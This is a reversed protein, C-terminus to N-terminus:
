VLSPLRLSMAEGPQWFIFEHANILGLCQQAETTQHHSHLRSSSLLSNGNFAKTPKQLGQHLLKTWISSTAPTLFAALLFAGSVIHLDFELRPNLCPSVFWPEPRLSLM